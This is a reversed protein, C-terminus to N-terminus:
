KLEGKFFKEAINYFRKNLEEKEEKSLKEQSIKWAERNCERYYAQLKQVREFPIDHDKMYKILIENMSDFEEGYFYKYSEIKKNFKEEPTKEKKRRVEKIKEKVEEQTPIRSIPKQVQQVQQSEIPKQIAPSEEGYLKRQIEEEKKRIPETYEKSWRDRDQLSFIRRGNEFEEISKKVYFEYRRKEVFKTNALDLLANFTFATLVYEKDGYDKKLNKEAIDLLRSVHSQDKGIRKAIEEEKYGKDRFKKVKKTLEYASPQELGTECLSNLDEEDYENYKVIARIYLQNLSQMAKIRHLGRILIYRYKKAEAGYEKELNKVYNIPVVTIPDVQGNEKISTKIENVHNPDVYIRIYDPPIFIDTILIEKIEEKVKPVEIKEIKERPAIVKPFEWFTDWGVTKLFKGACEGTFIEYYFTHYAGTRCTMVFRNKHDEILKWTHLFPLADEPNKKGISKFQNLLDDFDRPPYFKYTRVYYDIQERISRFEKM